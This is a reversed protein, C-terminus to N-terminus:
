SEEEVTSIAREPCCDVPGAAEQRDAMTHDLAIGFGEEDPEFLDPYLSYCQGHGQCATTVSLRTLTIM